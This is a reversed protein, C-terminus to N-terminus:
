PLQCATSSLSIRSENPRNQGFVTFHFATCQSIIMTVYTTLSRLLLHECANGTKWNLENVFCFDYRIRDSAKAGTGM